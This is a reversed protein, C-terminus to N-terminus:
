LFDEGSFTVVETLKKKNVALMLLRDLGLAIGAATDIKCIDELFRDPMKAERGWQSRIEDIESSFRQRQEKEDTLESFGNALEVGNVYLEFREVVGPDSEKKRALSGLAIPYDYLFVPSGFGLQSEVYEVLVEDFSGGALAQQLDIPAHHSFADKVTIKQWDGSLDIDKFFNEEKKDGTFLELEDAIFRLLEQCDTMLQLYDGDRRYWELMQFEEQHRAGIEDKRFCPCIQYIKNCGHALLRKMCLEPSTQLFQGEAEVPIINAEPILIPQRLPTDVELFDRSEFFARVARFFAARIHLGLLDIM